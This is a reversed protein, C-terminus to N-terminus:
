SANLHRISRPINPKVAKENMSKRGATKDTCRQLKIRSLWRDHVKQPLRKSYRLANRTHHSPSSEEGEGLTDLTNLCMSAIDNM